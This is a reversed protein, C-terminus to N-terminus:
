YTLNNRRKKHVAIPPWCNAFFRSFKLHSNNKFLIMEKETIAQQRTTIHHEWFHEAYVLILASPGGAGWGRLSPVTVLAIARLEVVLERKSM